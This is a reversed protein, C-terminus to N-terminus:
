LISIVWNCHDICGWHPSMQKLWVSHIHKANDNTPAGRMRSGQANRRCVFFNVFVFGYSECYQWVYVRIALQVEFHACVRAPRSVSTRYRLADLLLQARQAFWKNTRVRVVVCLTLYWYFCYNNHWRTITSAPTICIWRRTTLQACM